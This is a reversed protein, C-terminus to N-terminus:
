QPGAAIGAFNEGGGIAVHDRDVAVLARDRAAGGQDLCAAPPEHQDLVAEGIKRRDRTAEAMVRDVTDDEIEADGRHLEVFGSAAEREAEVTREIHAHAARRRACSIDHRMSGLAIKGDDDRREALLAVRARDRARDHARAPAGMRVVAASASMTAWTTCARGPAIWGAVRVKWASRRNTFSSSASSAAPRAAASATSRGPPRSTATAKWESSSRMTFVNRAVRLRRLPPDRWRGSALCGGAPKRTRVPRNTVGSAVAIAALGRAREALSRAASRVSAGAPLACSSRKGRSGARVSTMLPLRRHHAEEVDADDGREDGSGDIDVPDLEFRRALRLPNGLQAHLDPALVIHDRRQAGFPRLEVGRGADLIEGGTMERQ